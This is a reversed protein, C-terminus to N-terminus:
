SSSQLWKFAENEEKFARIEKNASRTLNRYSEYMRALGYAVNSNVILALKRKIKNQDNKSALKAINKIGELTLSYCSAKNFNVVENYHSYDPRSQINKQYTILAEILKIDAAEGEWTTIILKSSDDIYHTAPM